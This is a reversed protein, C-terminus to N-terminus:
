ARCPLERVLEINCALPWTWRLDHGTKSWDFDKSMPLPSRSTATYSAVVHKHPYRHVPRVNRLKSRAPSALEILIGIPVQPSLDLLTLFPAIRVACGHELM